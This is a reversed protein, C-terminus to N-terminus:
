VTPSDEMRGNTTTTEEHWVCCTGKRQQKARYMAQDARDILSDDPNDEVGCMAIGVSCSATLGEAALQDRFERCISEARRVADEEKIGWRLVNTLCGWLNAASCAITGDELRGVGDRLWATQGGLTFQSGEPLGACRGSDSVLIM